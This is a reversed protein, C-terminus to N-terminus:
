IKEAIEPETLKELEAELIAPTVRGAVDAEKEGDRYIHFAPLGMVGQSVAIDRNTQINIKAFKAKWGYKKELAEVQPMILM